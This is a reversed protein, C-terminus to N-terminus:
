APNAIKELIENANNAIGPSTLIQVKLMDELGSLFHKVHSLEEFTEKVNVFDDYRQSIYAPNALVKKELIALKTKFKTIKKLNNYNSQNNLCKLCLNQIQITDKELLYLEPDNLQKRLNNNYRAFPSTMARMSKLYYEKLQAYPDHDEVEKLKVRLSGIMDRHLQIEQRIEDSKEKTKPM